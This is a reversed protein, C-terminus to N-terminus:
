DSVAGYPDPSTKTRMLRTRIKVKRSKLALVHKSDVAYSVPLFAAMSLDKKAPIKRQMRVGSSWVKSVKRLHEARHLSTSNLVVHPHVYRVQWRLVVEVEQIVLCLFSAPLEGLLLQSICEASQGAFGTM